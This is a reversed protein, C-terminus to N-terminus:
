LKPTIWTTTPLTLLPIITSQPTPGPVPGACRARFTAVTHILVAWTVIAPPRSCIVALDHLNDPSKGNGSDYNDDDCDCDPTSSRISRWNVQSSQPSVKTAGTLIPIGSDRCPTQRTNWFRLRSIVVSFSIPQPTTATTIIANTIVIAASHPQVAPTLIVVPASSSAHTDSCRSSIGQRWYRGQIARSVSNADDVTVAPSGYAYPAAFLM